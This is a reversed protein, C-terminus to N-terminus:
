EAPISCGQPDTWFDTSPGPPPGVDEIRMGKVVPASSYTRLELRIYPGAPMFGVPTLQVLEDNYYVYRWGDQLVLDVTGDTASSPALVQESIATNKVVPGDGAVSDSLAFFEVTGDDDTILYVGVEYPSADAASPNFTFTIKIGDTPISLGSVENVAQDLALGLVYGGSVTIRDAWEEAWGAPGWTQGSLAVRGNLTGSGTFTDEFHVAM